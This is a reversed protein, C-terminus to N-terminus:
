EKFKNINYNTSVFSSMTVVFLLNRIPRHKINIIYRSIRMHQMHGMELNVFINYLVINIIIYYITM